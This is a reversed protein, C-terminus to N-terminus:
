HHSSKCGRGTYCLAIHIHPIYNTNDTATAEEDLAAAGAGDRIDSKGIPIEVCCLGAMKCFTFQFKKSLAKNCGHLGRM